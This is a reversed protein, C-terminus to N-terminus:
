EDGLEKEYNNLADILTQISELIAYDYQKMYDSVGDSEYSRRVLRVADILLELEDNARIEM